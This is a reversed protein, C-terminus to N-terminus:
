LGCLGRVTGRKPVLENFHTNNLKEMSFLGSAEEALGAIENAIAEKSEEDDGDQQTFVFRGDKPTEVLFTDEDVFNLDDVKM